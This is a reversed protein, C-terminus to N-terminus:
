AAPCSIAAVSLSTVGSYTLSALSSSPQQVEGPDFPGCFVEAGAPIPVAINGIPQGFISATTVVTLTIPAGSGNKLAIFTVSSPTYSDGGVSAAQYAPSLGAQSIPQTILTAM